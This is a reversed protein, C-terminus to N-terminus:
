HENVLRKLNKLVSSLKCYLAIIQSTLAILFMITIAMLTWGLWKIVMKGKEKNQLMSDWIGFYNLAEAAINIWM